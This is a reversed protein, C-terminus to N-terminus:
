VGYRFSIWWYRFISRYIEHADVGKSNTKNPSCLFLATTAYDNRNTILLKTKTNLGILTTPFILVDHYNVM